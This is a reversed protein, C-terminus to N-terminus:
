RLPNIACRELGIQLHAVQNLLNTLDSRFLSPRQRGDHSGHGGGVPAVLRGLARPGHLWSRVTRSRGRTRPAVAVGRPTRWPTPRWASDAAQSEAEGAAIDYTEHATTCIARARALYAGGSEVFEGAHRSWLAISIPDVLAHGAAFAYMRDVDDPHNTRVWDAFAQWIDEYAAVNLDDVVGSVAWWRHRPVVHGSSAGDRVRSDSRERRHVRM